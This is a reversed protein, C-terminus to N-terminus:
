HAWGSAREGKERRVRPTLVSAATTPYTLTRVIVRPLKRELQSRTAHYKPHKLPRRGGVGHARQRAQPCLLRHTCWVEGVLGGMLGRQHEEEGGENNPKWKMTLASRASNERRKKWGEAARSLSNGLALARQPSASVGAESDNERGTTEGKERRPKTEGPGGWHDSLSGPSPCGEPRTPGEPPSPPAPPRGPPNQPSFLPPVSSTGASRDHAQKASKPRKRRYARDQSGRPANLLKQRLRKPTECALTHIKYENMNDPPADRRCRSELAGFAGKRGPSLLLMHSSLLVPRQKSTSIVEDSSGPQQKSGREWLGREWLCSIATAAAAAAATAAASGSEPEAARCSSPAPSAASDRLDSSSTPFCVGMTKPV